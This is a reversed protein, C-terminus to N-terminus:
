PAATVLGLQERLFALRDAQIDPLLMAHEALYLRLTKPESAAAFFREYDESPTYFDETGFQFLLPAPAAQGIFRAPALPEMRAKYAALGAYDEPVGFLMWNNFNSAGAILVYSQARQDVGALIAGYMAGFDHGVFAVREPDTQPQALLVDLAHRLEVTQRIVDDYDTELTRGSRYWTPASWPADVLLSRVGQEALLLAEEVFQTRNSSPNGPEYWHVLLVAPYPGTGAPEVLYAATTKGETAAPYTVDRITVAGRTETGVTTLVVQEQRQYDFLAM